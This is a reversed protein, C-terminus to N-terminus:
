ARRRAVGALGLLGLAFLATTTAEPVATTAYGQVSASLGLTARQFSDTSNTFVATLWKGSSSSQDDAPWYGYTGRGTLPDYRYGYNGSAYASVNVSDNFSYNANVGPAYYSYSLSMAANASSSETGCSTSYYSTSSCQANGAFATADVRATVLLVSRPSLDIAYISNYYYSNQSSGTIASANFSTGKGGAEGSATVSTATVSAQARANGADADLTIPFFVDARSKSASDAAGLSTDSASVSVTTGFVSSLNASPLLTYTSVVGDNADLDILQFSLQGASATAFSGAQAALPALALVSTVASSFAIRQISTM